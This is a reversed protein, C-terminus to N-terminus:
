NSYNGVSLDHVAGSFVHYCRGAQTNVRDFTYSSIIWASILTSPPQAPNPAVEIRFVM